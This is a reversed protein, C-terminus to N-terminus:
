LRHGTKRLLERFRPNAHLPTLDRDVKLFAMSHSRQDYAKELWALAEEQEGLALYAKAIEYSPIYGGSQGRAEIQRLLEEAQGREGAIAQARALAAVYITSNNTLTIARRYREIAEDVRNMEELAKGSWLLAVAYDADLELTQRCQELAREYDGAFYFVWGLAASAILSLPDLEQARRMEREAEDFRGMATLFNAYWQHATSYSPDLEISRQFEQEARPWDWHYYLAVYGLTSHPAALSPDLELAREAAAQAKPFAERPPLYDYFGLVAYADALGAHARAYDPVMEAAQQFHSIASRIGEETRRHWAYRGKLYLDYAAPEVVAQEIAAMDEAGALKGKLSEVIARSIEEQIGFVDEMEREYTKSWIHYGDAVNILQATIRLRNGAKRVSGELVTAVGLKEGVERVDVQRNKFAFASTRAAVRLGEVQALSNILEETIGDSFYEHDGRPSLDAFPLV